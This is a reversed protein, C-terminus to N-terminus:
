EGLYVAKLNPAEITLYKADNQNTESQGGDLVEIWCISLVQLASLKLKMAITPLSLKDVELQRVSTFWGLLDPSTSTGCIKVRKFNAAQDQWNPPRVARYDVVENSVMWRNGYSPLGKPGDPYNRPSLSDFAYTDTIVLQDKHTPQLDIPPDEPHAEPERSLTSSSEAQEHAQQHPAHVPNPQPPQQFAGQGPLPVIPNPQQPGLSTAESTGVFTASHPAHASSARHTQEPPDSPINFYCSLDDSEDGSM